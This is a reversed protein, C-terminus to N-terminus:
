GKIAGIMVGNVFYRQLWPYVLLIPVTAFMVSAAKLGEPVLKAVAGAGEAALLDTIMNNQILQYLKLQLPYLEPSNIYMLTDQFGNWRGVAYFLSLTAIVPLSLPLIIGILTRFHSSGDIEASEELSEPINNFFTILIILYFPNILGPLVLAWITDLLNLSRVLIYEPIIGGSFFMTIVVVTMLLKRGRLKRKSLPYGAAITMIMCLVTFLTTLMVTFGLSRIMSSDTFVQKYSEFNIEVPILNVKGSLIPGPSSLSVALIHIFPALCLLTAITLVIFNVTNFVRNATQESM